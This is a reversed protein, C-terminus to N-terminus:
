RSSSSLARAMELASEGGPYDARRGTAVRFGVGRFLRQAPENSVATWLRLEGWGAERAAEEVRQLLLTGIGRRRWQPRVAIAVLEAAVERRFGVPRRPALVAFAVRSRGCLAVWSRTGPRKLIRGLLEGYGPGLAAFAREAARSLHQRDSSRGPRIRVPLGATTARDRGRERWAPGRLARSRGGVEGGGREEDRGRM